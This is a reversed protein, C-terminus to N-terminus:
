LIYPKHDNKLNKLGECSSSLHNIVIRSVNEMDLGYYYIKGNAEFSLTIKKDPFFLLSEEPKMFLYSGYGLGITPLPIALPAYKSTKIYLKKQEIHNLIESNHKKGNLVLFGAALYGYHSGGVRISSIKLELEQDKPTIIISPVFISSVTEGANWVIEMWHNKVVIEINPRKYYNWIKKCNNSFFKWAALVIVLPPFKVSALDM